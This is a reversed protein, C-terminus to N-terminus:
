ESGTQNAVRRRKRRRGKLGERGAGGGFTVTLETDTWSRCDATRRMLFLHHQAVPLISELGVNASVSLSVSTKDSTSLYARGREREESM